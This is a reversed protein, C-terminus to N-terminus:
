ERPPEWLEIKTGEPDLIWGFKGYESDDVKDFVHVGEERLAALLAYLDAVIFNIMYPKESPSLYSTTEKFPSWVNYGQLQEAEVDKWFFQSGWEEANIGLHKSYWARLAQPDKSKFFIGGLGVVRKM